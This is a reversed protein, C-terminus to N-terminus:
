GRSELQQLYQGATNRHGKLREPGMRDLQRVMMSLRPQESFFVRHKDIFRWFLADWIECWPGKPYDSMKRIYNSGSIYPKTCLLGGDAFQSMGYVNPVMVWDYADIFLEMFWRYVDDPRIECLLMFNGLVMLREIHHCYGTDLVRRIVRDVPDIGTTGRYFAEPMPRTHSWFNANRQRVGVKRYMRMMFERWGAVQRLFGELDNLPVSYEEAYALAADVVEQPTLLGTNLMPTLLSHHLVSADRVMADEFTGFGVLREKLFQDLWIMADKRNVPYQFPDIRGPNEPFRRNVYTIAERVFDNPKVSPPDPPVKKAPWKRRNATDHSWAGGAIRGEEMLWGTRKRQAIYFSAMRYPPKEGVARDAWDPPSLFMPSPLIELDINLESCSRKLRRELVDDVPDVVTIRRAGQAHLQRVTDRVSRGPEYEMYLVRQGKLTAAHAKM